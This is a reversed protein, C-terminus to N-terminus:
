IRSLLFIHKPKSVRSIECVESKQVVYQVAEDPGEEWLEFWSWIAKLGTPLDFFILIPIESLAIPAIPRKLYSWIGRNLVVYGISGKARKLALISLLCNPIIWSCLLIVYTIHTYMHKKYIENCFYQTSNLLKIKMHSCLRHALYTIIVHSYIYINYFSKMWWVCAIYKM